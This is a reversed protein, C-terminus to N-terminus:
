TYRVLNSEFLDQMVSYLIGDRDVCLMGKPTKLVELYSQILKHLLTCYNNVPRSYPSLMDHEIRNKLFKYFSNFTQFIGTPELYLFLDHSLKIKTCISLVTDLLKPDANRHNKLVATIYEALTRALCGLNETSTRHRFSGRPKRGGMLSRIGDESNVLVEVLKVTHNQLPYTVEQSKDSHAELIPQLIALVLPSEISIKSENLIVSIFNVLILVPGCMGIEESHSNLFEVSSLVITNLSMSAEVESNSLPILMRGGEYSLLSQLIYISSTFVTYQVMYGPIYNSGQPNDKIKQLSSKVNLYQIADFDEIWKIVTETLFRILPSSRLFARLLLSRSFLGHLWYQSWSANYDIISLLHFPYLFKERSMGDYTHMALLDIFSEIMEEVKRTSFRIWEKPIEKQADSILKTIKMIRFHLPKNFDIGSEYTPLHPLMKRSMYQTSLSEILNVFAEKTAIHVSSPAILKAHIKLGLSFITDNEDCLAERLGRRLQMWHPGEVADSMHAGQLIKLSEIRTQVSKRGSIDEALQQYQQPLISHNWWGDDMSSDSDCMSLRSAQRSPVINLHLLENTLIDSRNVGNRINELLSVMQPAEMISNYVERAAAKWTAPSIDNVSTM